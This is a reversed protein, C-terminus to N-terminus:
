RSRIRLGKFRVARRPVAVAALALMLAGNSLEGVAGEREIRYAHVTGRPNVRERALVALRYRRRAVMM